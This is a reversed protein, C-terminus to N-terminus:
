GVWLFAALDRGAANRMVREIVRMGYTGNSFAVIASGSSPHVLTFNKWIGGGNDGWQWLYEPAIGPASSELGVGLGWAQLASVRTHATLMKARTAPKLDAADGTPRVLRTLFATYDRVTTFLGSAVNPRMSQATLDRRLLRAAELTQEHRWAAAPQGSALMLEFVKVNFDWYDRTPQNDRFFSHGQAIREMADARWLYTSEKMGLRDMRERMFQEIGTGTIREVCRQLLYYGEGSYLFRTGPEFRSIFAENADQRWNRFGSSHSLVHRATVRLEREGSPREAPRLYDFLPRDLDIRGEDSLQLVTWAFVPKGLSAAPFLTNASVAVKTNTDMVGAFHAGAAKGNQVEGIGLGPLSAIELLQPLTALFDDGLPALGSTPRRAPATALSRALLLPTTAALTAAFHRRNMM